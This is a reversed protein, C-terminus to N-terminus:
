QISISSAATCCTMPIHRSEFSPPGLAALQETPLVDLLGSISEIKIPRSGGSESDFHVVIVQEVGSSAFRHQVDFGKSRDDAQYGRRFWVDRMSVHQAKILGM